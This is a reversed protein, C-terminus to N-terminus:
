HVSAVAQLLALLQALFDKIALHCNDLIDSVKLFLIEDSARAICESLLSYYYLLTLLHHLFLLLFLDFTM